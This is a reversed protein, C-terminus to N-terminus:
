SGRLSEMLFMSSQKRLRELREAVDTWDVQELLRSKLIQATFRQWERAPVIRHSLGLPELASYFRCNEAATSGTQLFALFPREM